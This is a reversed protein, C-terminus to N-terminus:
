VQQKNRSLYDAQLLPKALDARMQPDQIYKLSDISNAIQMQPDQQLSQMRRQLADSGGTDIPDPGNATVPKPGLLNGAMGGAGAGAMAGAPGGYIGGAIAGGIQMLQGLGGDGAPQKRIQSVGVSM